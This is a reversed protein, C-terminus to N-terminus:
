GHVAVAGDGPRRGDLDGGLRLVRAGQGRHEDPAGQRLRRRRGPGGGLGCRSGDRRAGRRGRRQRARGNPASKRVISLAGAEVAERVLYPNEASTYVIVPYGAEFLAAVNARPSSGDGLRLDLVVVVGEPLEAASLGPLWLVEEAVGADLLADRVGLGMVQHDDIIVVARCDAAM